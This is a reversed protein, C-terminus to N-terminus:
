NWRISLTMIHKRTSPTSAIFIPYNLTHLSYLRPLIYLGDFVYWFWLLLDQYPYWIFFCYGWSVVISVAILKSELSLPPLRNVQRASITGQWLARCGPLKSPQMFDIRLLQPAAAHGQASFPQSNPSLYGVKLFCKQPSCSSSTAQVSYLLTPIKPM